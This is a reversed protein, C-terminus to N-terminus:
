VIQIAAGSLSPGMIQRPSLCLNLRCYIQLNPQKEYSKVRVHKEVTDYRHEREVAIWDYDVKDGEFSRFSRL